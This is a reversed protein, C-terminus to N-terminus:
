INSLEKIRKEIDRLPMDIIDQRTKGRLISQVVRAAAASGQAVSDPIDKPGQCTGALTIGSRFTGTPDMDYNAEEFWGCETVPIGLM